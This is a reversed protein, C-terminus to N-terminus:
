QGLRRARLAFALAAAAFLAASLLLWRGLYVDASLGSARTFGGANLAFVLPFWVLLPVASLFAPVRLHRVVAGRALLVGLLTYLPFLVLDHAVIAGVFWAAFRTPDSLTGLARAVAWGAVAFTAVALLLHGPGAGYRQRWSM